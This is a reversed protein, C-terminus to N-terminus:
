EKRFDFKLLQMTCFHAPAKNRSCLLICLCEELGLQKSLTPRTKLGARLPSFSYIIKPLNEGEPSLGLEIIM